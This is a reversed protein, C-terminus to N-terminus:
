NLDKFKEARESWYKKAIKLYNEINDLITSCDSSYFDKGGSKIMEKVLEPSIFYIEKCYKEVSDFIDLFKILSRKNPNTAGIIIPSSYKYDGRREYYDSLMYIFTDLRDYPNLQMSAKTCNMKGTVPMLSINLMTKNNKKCSELTLLLNGYKKELNPNEKFCTCILAKILKAKTENFNFDRDGSIAFKSHDDKFFRENEKVCAAFGGEITKLTDFDFIETIVSKEYRKKYYKFAEKSRDSDYSGSKGSDLM